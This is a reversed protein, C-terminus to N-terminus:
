ARQCAVGKYRRIRTAQRTPRTIPRANRRHSAQSPGGAASGAGAADAVLGAPEEATPGAAGDASRAAARGALADSGSPAGPCAAAGGAFVAAVKPEGRRCSRVLPTSAQSPGLLRAVASMTGLRIMRRRNPASAAGSTSNATTCASICASTGGPLPMRRIQSNNRLVSTAIRIPNLTALTIWGPRRVCRASRGSLGGSANRVLGISCIRSLM